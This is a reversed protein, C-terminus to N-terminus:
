ISTLVQKGLSFIDLSGREQVCFSVFDDAKGIRLDVGLNFRNKCFNPLSEFYLLMEM